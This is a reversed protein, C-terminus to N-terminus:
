IEMKEKRLSDLVEGLRQQHSSSASVSCYRIVWELPLLCPQKSRVHRRCRPRSFAADELCGVVFQTGGRFPFLQCGLFFNSALVGTRPLKRQSDDRYMQLQFTSPSQIMCWGRGALYCQRMMNLVSTERVLAAAERIGGTLAARALNFGRYPANCYRAADQLYAADNAETGIGRVLPCPPFTIRRGAAHLRLGNDYPCATCYLRGPYQFLIPQLAQIVHGGRRTSIERRGNQRISNTPWRYPSDM